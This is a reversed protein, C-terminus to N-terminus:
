RSPTRLSFESFVNSFVLPPTFRFYAFSSAFSTCSCCCASSRAFRPLCVAIRPHAQPCRIVQASPQPSVFHWPLRRVALRQNHNLLREACNGNKIFRSRRETLQITVEITCFPSSRDPWFAALAMATVIGPPTPIPLRYLFLRHVM